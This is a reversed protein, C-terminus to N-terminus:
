PLSFDQWAKASLFDNVNPKGQPIIIEVAMMGKSNQRIAPQAVKFV